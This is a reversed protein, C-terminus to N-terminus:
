LDPLFHRLIFFLRYLSLLTSNLRGTLDGWLPTLSVDFCLGMCVCISTTIALVIETSQQVDCLSLLGPGQKWAHKTQGLPIRNAHFNITQSLESVPVQDLAILHLPFLRQPCYICAHWSEGQTSPPPHKCIGPTVYKSQASQPSEEPCVNSPVTGPQLFCRHLWGHGPDM